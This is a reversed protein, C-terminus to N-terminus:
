QKVFRKVWKKGNDNQDVTILYLGTSLNLVDIRRTDELKGSMILRGDISYIRYTAISSIDDGEITLYDSAPNPVIKIGGYEQEKVNVIDAAICELIISPVVCKNSDIVNFQLAVTEGSVLGDVVYFTDTVVFNNGGNVSLIYGQADEVEPWSFIIEGIGFSDCSVIPISVYDLVQITVTDSNSGCSNFISAIIDHIGVELILSDIPDTYPSSNLSWTITDFDGITTYMFQVTDGFCTIGTDSSLSIEPLAIQSIFLHQEFTCFASDNVFSVNEGFTFVFSSDLWGFVGDGNPDQDDLVSPDFESLMFDCISIPDFVEIDVEGDIITVTRCISGTWLTCGNDVSDLCVSYVGSNNFTLEINNQETIPSADGTYPVGSLTIISWTYTVDGDQNNTEFFIEQGACFESDECVLNGNKLICVEEFDFTYPIPNGNVSIEYSCVSSSCGDIFFYYTEGPILLDSDFTVPDTSCAPDCYVSETFSCDTYVGMQVGEQGTTSGTCGTPTITLTYDGDDAIFAIWSINHPGGGDPCLPNPQNGQSNTAHMLGCLNNLASISCFVDQETIQDCAEIAWYPEINCDVFFCFDIYEVTGIGTDLGFISTQTPVLDTGNDDLDVFDSADNFGPCSYFGQMDGEINFEEIAIELYYNGAPIINFDTSPFNFEFNVTIASDIIENSDSNILYIKIDNIGEEGNYMNNYDSDIWVTGSLSIEQAISSQLFMCFLLCTSIIEKM